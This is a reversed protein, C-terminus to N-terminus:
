LVELVLEVLQAYGDKEKEAAETGAGVMRRDLGLGVVVM